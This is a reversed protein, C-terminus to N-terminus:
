PRDFLDELAALQTAAEHNSPQLALVHEFVIRADDFQNTEMLYHGAQLWVQNDDPRLALAAHYAETAQQVDGIADTALALHLWYGFGEPQYHTAERFYSIADAQRGNALALEGRKGWTHADVPWRQLLRAYWSDATEFNGELRYSEAMGIYYTRQDAYLFLGQTLVDRAMTSNGLKLYASGLVEYVAPPPHPEIALVRELALVAQDYHGRDFLSFGLHRWAETMNPDTYAAMYFNALANDIDRHTGADIGQNLWFKASAVTGRCAEMSHDQRGLTWYFRCQEFQTLDASRRDDNIGQIFWKEAVSTQGAFAALKAMARAQFGTVPLDIQPLRGLDAVTARGQAVPMVAKLLTLNISTMGPVYRLSYLREGLVFIALIGVLLIFIRSTYLERAKVPKTSV